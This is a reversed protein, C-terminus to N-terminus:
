TVASKQATGEAPPASLGGGYTALACSPNKQRLVDGHCDGETFPIGNITGSTGDGDCM